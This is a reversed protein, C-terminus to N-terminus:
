CCALALPPQKKFQVSFKVMAHSTNPKSKTRGYRLIHFAYVDVLIISYLRKCIRKDICVLYRSQKWRSKM